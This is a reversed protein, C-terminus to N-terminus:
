DWSGPSVERIVCISLLLHTNDAHSILLDIFTGQYSPFECIGDSMYKEFAVAVDVTVYRESKITRGFNLRGVASEPNPVLNVEVDETKPTLLYDRRCDPPTSHPVVAFTFHAESLYWELECLHSSRWCPIRFLLGCLIRPGNRNLTLLRVYLHIKNNLANDRVLEHFMGIRGEPFPIWIWM